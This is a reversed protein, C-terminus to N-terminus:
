LELMERVDQPSAIERGAARAIQAARHVVEENRPCGLEVYPFDGIGPAINGGRRAVTDCLDLLNGGVINATWYHRARAPLFRLHAELGDVTGPHGTIFPADTMNLLFYAPEAALGMDILAEARRMFGVSWCVLKPKIHAAKLREVYSVVVDTRNKYVRDTHSFTKTGADYSELNATGTDVPVIDPRTAPDKALEMMCDMRGYPDDDSAIFGLTPLILIDCKARVKRIVNANEEVTHRPAGDPARAHFHLISAGAERCRAATEAIEDATWPVHPNRDRMAYENVRAEIIMKQM